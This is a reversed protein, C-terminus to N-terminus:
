PGFRGNSAASFPAGCNGVRCCRSAGVPVIDLGSTIAAAVTSVGSGEGATGRIAGEAEDDGGATGRLRPGVALALGCPAVGAWGAASGPGAVQCDSNGPDIWYHSGGHDGRESSLNVHDVAAANSM